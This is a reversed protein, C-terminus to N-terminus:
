KLKIKGIRRVTENHNTMFKKTKNKTREWINKRLYCVISLRIADKEVLEIPLNGHWHHVDMFLIDGSRVDFGIGYQPFCTEGGKYKGKELVVLNGFGEADDGKDTHVTTQYNINTTVTTFSTNPIRFYTQKAKQIQKKYYEPTLKKYLRDVDQILPQVGKYKEPHDRNFRCERVALPIKMGRSTFMKKHSATWQDFYGFINSMVRPNDGLNKKKSGTASGRNGTTNKAFDIINDYFADIHSQPLISKRFKALLINEPHSYVDADHDIIKKIKDRKLFHNAVKTEMTKDDIEKEVHYVQIGNVKESKIIM